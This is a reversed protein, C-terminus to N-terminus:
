AEDESSVVKSGAVYVSKIDRSDALYIFKQLLEETSMPKLMDVESRGNGMSVLIADLQKGPEFNGTREALGLATAGGLTAMQFGHRFDLQQYDERHIAYINSTQLSGRVGDLVSPHHGGSLDALCTIINLRRASCSCAFAPALNPLRRSKVM